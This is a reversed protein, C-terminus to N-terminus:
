EQRDHLVVGAFGAAIRCFLVRTTPRPRHVNWDSPNTTKSSERPLRAADRLWESAAGGDSHVCRYHECCLLPPPGLPIGHTTDM